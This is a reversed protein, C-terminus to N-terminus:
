ASRSRSAPARVAAARPAARRSALAVGALILVLAIVDTVSISEDLLAAGYVLAFAPMLYTVLSM